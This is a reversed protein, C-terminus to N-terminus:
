KYTAKVEEVTTSIDILDCNFADVVVYGPAKEISFVITNDEMKITLPKEPSTKEAFVNFDNAFAGGLVAGYGGTETPYVRLTYMMSGDCLVPFYFMDADENCFSFPTGITLIGNEPLEGPDVSRVFGMVYKEAFDIYEQPCEKTSIYLSDATAPQREYDIKEGVAIDKLEGIYETGPKQDVNRAEREAQINGVIALVLIGCCFVAAIIIALTRSKM